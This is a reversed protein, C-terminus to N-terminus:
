GTIGFWAAVVRAGGALPGIISSLKRVSGFLSTGEQVVVNAEKLTEGIKRVNEVVADSKMDEDSVADIANGAATQASRVKERPLDSQELADYLEELTARLEVTNIEVDGPINNGTVQVSANRGVAVGQANLIDGVQIKDGGNSKDGM